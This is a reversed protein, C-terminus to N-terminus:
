QAQRAKNCQDHVHTITRNFSQIIYVHDAVSTGLDSKLRAHAEKGRSTIRLNIYFYSNTFYKLIRKKTNENLWEKEIYSVLPGFIKSNYLDKFAKWAKNSQAVTPAKIVHWWENLMLKWCAHVEAHFAKMADKDKPDPATDMGDHLDKRLCVRAKSLINQNVHPDELLEVPSKGSLDLVIEPPPANELPTTREKLIDVINRDPLLVEYEYDFNVLADFLDGDSDM